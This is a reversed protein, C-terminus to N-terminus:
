DFRYIGSRPSTSARIQGDREPIRSEMPIISPKIPIEKETVIQSIVVPLSKGDEEHGTEGFV